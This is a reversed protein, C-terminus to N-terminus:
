SGSGFATFTVTIGSKLRAPNNLDTVMVFATEDTINIEASAAFDNQTVIELIQLDKDYLVIRPSWGIRTDKKLISMMGASSTSFWYEGSINKLDFRDDHKLITSNVINSYSVKLEYFWDSRSKRVVKIAEIGRKKFESLVVEPDVGSEAVLSFILFMDGKTYKAKSITFYSYGIASLVNSVAKTLFIPKTKAKFGIKIETPKQLSLSLLGNDKLTKIVKYYDVQKDQGEAFVFKTKNAFLRNVFNQNIQYSKEGMINLVIDDLSDAYLALNLFLSLLLVRVM